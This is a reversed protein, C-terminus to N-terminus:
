YQTAFLQLPDRTELLIAYWLLIDINIKSAIVQGSRLNLYIIINLFIGSIFKQVKMDIVRPYEIFIGMKTQM